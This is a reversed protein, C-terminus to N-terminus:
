IHFYTAEKVSVGFNHSLKKIILEKFIEKNPIDTLTLEEQKILKKVTYFINMLISIYIKYMYLFIHVFVLITLM